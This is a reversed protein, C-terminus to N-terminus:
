VLYEIPILFIILIIIWYNTSLIVNYVLELVNSWNKKAMFAIDFMIACSLLYLCVLCIWSSVVSPSSPKFMFQCPNPLYFSYLKFNFIFYSQIHSFWLIKCWHANTLNWLSALIPKLWKAAIFLCSEIWRLMCNQMMLHM